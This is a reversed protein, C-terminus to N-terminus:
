KVFLRSDMSNGYSIQLVYCGTNLMDGMIVYKGDTSIAHESYLLKSTMDFIAFYVQEDIPLNYLCLTNNLIPNPAIVIDSAILIDENSVPQDFQAAFSVSEATMTFTYPNVTSVLSDGSYWGIFIYDDNAIAELTVEDDELYKGSGVVKGKTEDTDVDVYYYDFNFTFYPRMSNSVNTNVGFHWERDFDLATFSMENEFEDSTLHIEGVNESSSTAADANVYCDSLTITNNDIDDCVIWGYTDSDLYVMDFDVVVNTISIEAGYAYVSSVIGGLANGKLIGYFYCDRVRTDTYMCNLSGILGGVSSGTYYYLENMCEVTGIYSCNILNTNTAIGILGGVNRWGLVTGNEVSVNRM